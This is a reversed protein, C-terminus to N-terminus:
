DWYIATEVAKLLRTIDTPHIDGINGMRFTDRQTVKRPYIVFDQEKLRNYFKGFSYGPNTPTHFATIIPSRHEPSLLPRFGLKEMGAVLRQHNEKTSTLM